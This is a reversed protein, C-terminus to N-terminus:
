LAFFPPITEPNLLAVYVSDFTNAVYFFAFLLCVGVYLAKCSLIPARRKLSPMMAFLALALTIGYREFRMFDNTLFVVPVLVLLCLNLFLIGFVAKGVGWEFLGKDLTGNVKAMYRCCFYALVAM